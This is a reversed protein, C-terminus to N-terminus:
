FETYCTRSAVELVVAENDKAYFEADFVVKRLAQETTLVTEGDDKEYVEGLLAATNRETRAESQIYKNLVDIASGMPSHYHNDNMETAESFMERVEDKTFDTRGSLEISNTSIMSTTM